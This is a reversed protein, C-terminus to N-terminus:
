RIWGYVKKFWMSINFWIGEFFGLYEQKIESFLADLEEDSKVRDKERFELLKIDVVVSERFEVSYKIWYDNKLCLDDDYGSFYLDYMEVVLNHPNYRVWTKNTREYKGDIYTDFWLGTPHRQLEEKEKETYPVLVIGFEEKWMTGDERIEYNSLGRGLNKTQFTFITNFDAKTLEQRDEPVPLPFKCKITDYLGM